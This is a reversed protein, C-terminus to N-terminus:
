GQCRSFVEPRKGTRALSLYIDMMNQASNLDRHHFKPSGSENWCYSCYRLGHPKESYRGDRTRKFHNSELKKLLSKSGDIKALSHTVKPELLAHHCRCCYQSTCYEDVLTVKAGHLVSLRRRLRGLPAPAYGFGTHCSSADGFAVLVNEKSTTIRKCITDLTKDRKMFSQFRLRRQSKVEYTAIITDLIPLIHQLYNSWENLDRRPPLKQLHEYLTTDGVCTKSLLSVTRRAYRATGTMHRESKTSVTFSDGENSVLAIMDRRGPDIGVLRKYLHPLRPQPGRNPGGNAADEKAQERKRKRTPKPVDRKMVLCVSVGDTRLYHCKCGRDFKRLNPFLAYFDKVIPIKAGTCLKQLGNDQSIGMHPVNFSAMPLPAVAKVSKGFIYEATKEHNPPLLQQLHQLCAARHEQMAYMWEWIGELYRSGAAKHPDKNYIFSETPCGEMPAYTQKWTRMLAQLQSVLNPPVEAPLAPVNQHGSAFKVFHQVLKWRVEKNLDKKTTWEHIIIERRVAKELQVHFNAGMMNQTMTVASKSLENIFPWIKDAKIPTATGFLEHISQEIAADKTCVNRKGNLTGCCNLCRNWWTQDFVHPTNGAKLERLATHTAVHFGRLALAHHAAVQKDIETRIEPPAGLRALSCKVTFEAM